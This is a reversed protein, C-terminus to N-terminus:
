SSGECGNGHKLPHQLLVVPDHAAVALLVIASDGTIDRLSGPVRTELECVVPERSWGFTKLMQGRM